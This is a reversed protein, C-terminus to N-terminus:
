CGPAGGAVWGCGACKIVSPRNTMVGAAVVVLLAVRPRPIALRPAAPEAFASPSDRPRVYVCQRSTPRLVGQPANTRSRLKLTPALRCTFCYHLLLTPPHIPASTYTCSTSSTSSTTTTSTTAALFVRLTLRGHHLIMM